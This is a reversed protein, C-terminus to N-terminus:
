ALAERVIRAQEAQHAAPYGEAPSAREPRSVDKIAIPAPTLDRLKPLVFKRAGMNRPEEQVWVVEALKPYRRVLDALEVTPFPYLLEMRGIAVHRAQARAPAALMDYYVKGSCLVLRTITDRRDAAPTDDLVARFRGSTLADLRSTAAPLRLLSKPTMVVLPRLEAHRAQRRLLHFYQAPTTCNAVRINGEAGLALFRELRASSHEPGQGEYGHPLLLTLRSTQGWKALGSIIFQDIIVEGGNAFDGFQAEWLVLAEPAAVAYGYEFGLCALESLPSNHLEFPARAGPLHQIPAYRRGNVADHLMLQRQSFTGRETDQGTLRIPIGEGVLSALALAEAQAWEIGGELGLTERRRELQKKLKPNVTFGEPLQLLQDNLTTLLEARVATEPETTTQSSIRQPEEGGGGAALSAKLAQQIEALRAYAADAEAQGQAAAVIGERALQEAYKQRVPPTQRIREYMLPQTYAPEDAENHGHRRYGVLDIVVDGRFKTRYMMALRVAALCAEPDDANVHIIPADFGKALDSSYDTSRGERPDTTFGIQNNGILHITGGTSYGTLRALNFTEAVGGQGPFAADGHILVPLAVTGDHLAETGRRTTQEARARGEVVPNVAELHSPNPSLTVTVSKGLLTKYAGEAGHHYKVDGTGGEPTLTEEVNRGGEFEAFITEYPLNVIHALVNLRGRHAMGIVVERAGVAGAMEITLDLMPVAADLGEISFRKQGLYAKHLFRELAEVATLRALLRKKEESSLPKRHLGSEILQRLWVRQEHSGIHEVEYAITGCYIAHLPPYAEALTRGPVYIRLVEAPIRAMIEPTLGLPETELAPDGPPEAGLPDLRAATHGFHRHAKVLGMAAAVHKLDEVGVSATGPLPASPVVGWEGSGSLGLSEAVSRYFGDEGQLLADLRKLFMGSEAGQIVRHDYTSTITMIKAGAIDRITGTAIISGQGKMLRPVSATTGITGPNTLTVTAGAFDDPVLHNTRAKDVLSEYAAHFRAFDMTEAHKVVPVVLARTGDKRETDVALGLSIGDPDVRHPKGDQDLFARGMVPLQKAAQVIAYGILHTFSLKRGSSAVQGNIAARRAALVDVPIDRFSTATPVSLSDTMNQVLRAAPGTIPASGAPPPVPSPPRTTETPEFGDRTGRGEDRELESRSTAIVPLETIKGNDFLQRWEESVSAPDRLYQEYMVQVFPANNTGFVFQSV